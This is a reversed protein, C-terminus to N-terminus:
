KKDLRFQDHCNKCAGGMTMAQAGTAAKDGEGAITVLKASEDVLKQHAVIFEDPKEWIAPLAETDFGADRGTGEPFYAEIRGARTNIEDAQAAILAFDPSDKELEGRVLKFADGIGKFNEQRESIVTPKEAGAAGDGEPAESSCAALIGALATAAFLHSAFKRIM